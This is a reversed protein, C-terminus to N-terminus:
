RNRWRGFSRVTPLRLGTPAALGASRAGDPGRVSRPRPAAVLAQATWLAIRLLKVGRKRPTPRSPPTSPPCPFGKCPRIRCAWSQGGQVARSIPVTEISLKPDNSPTTPCGFITRDLPWRGHVVPIPISVADSPGLRDLLWRGRGPVTDPGSCRAPM